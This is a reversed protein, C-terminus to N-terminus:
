TNWGLGIHTALLYCMAITCTMLMMPFGLRFFEMFSFGYGHQEAIGACVVNASAGILTGNGGLCAGMALAFILPKVPLNVDEDQSLNILVPIMTATFPINDILSSALASVWMVLIIAIALREEEPVAKILAATQDGIYDILQLHALAEMLVFLAAFFLLTAWEVRHLIIEFDQVDALVMLWLAGLIAIWGLDLHIGSFFSNLFFMLIVVALVSVCKVLLVKDTIKHKKQLEQINHEWNKDEQSIQWQFSRLQRRLLNELNHVKQTLLRKVATEERSAPNIRQATQKWVLIEHKLEVIEIPEKNYLKKNWYLMRFFPFSTLLVLCIGLFMYGTFGAFDIGKQRLDQNSVIIVNPPDGVATAAGGINTFIVEAILVHRPDLNLVECLRITVPTFLMMTTVNDLFASLIAAILCLIIIMPWVRGRSLQYAKVACYDFFGTESFIAVLIMMGFLLALTEYDIWEVVMMLSPRDGVFALAALAALSGLMAALTRHVIEFIILVYVGALIIGAMLVQTEVTAFLSQHTMSLPVVQSDLLFAQVTIVVPSSSLMEFTRTRVIQDSRQSHLPISWNYVVQQARRRRPGVEEIQEVQVLIYESAPIDEARAVFPGGMQLKLQANGRFDTLNMSFSETSSVALMTWPNERDPYMSFLLSCLVVIIFITFTKFVKLGYRVNSSLKFNLYRNDLDYKESSWSRSLGSGGGAAEGALRCKRDAETSSSDLSSEEGSPFNPDHLTMYTISDDSSFKLLPSRETTHKAQNTKGRLFSVVSFSHSDEQHTNAYIACHGPPMAAAQLLKQTERRDSFGELLRLEDFNGAMVESKRHGVRSQQGPAGAQSMEIELNGKNELYM